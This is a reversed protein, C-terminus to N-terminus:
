LPEKRTQNNVRESAHKYLADAFCEATWKEEILKRGADAIKQLYPKAYNGDLFYGTNHAFEEKDSVFMCNVKTEFGMDIYEQHPQAFCVCGALPIELYKPVVYWDCLALAGAFASLLRIYAMGKPVEPREAAHKVYFTNKQAYAWRRFDYCDLGGANLFGNGLIKHKREALPIMRAKEPFRKISPAPPFWFLMKETDPIYPDSEHPIHPAIYKDYGNRYPCIIYDVGRRMARLVRQEAGLKHVEPGDRYKGKMEQQHPDNFYTYKVARHDALGEIEIHHSSHIDYILIVDAYIDKAPRSCSVFSIDHYRMKSNTFRDLVAIYQDLYTMSYTDKKLKPCEPDVIVALKLKKEKM